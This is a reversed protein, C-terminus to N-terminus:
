RTLSLAPTLPRPGCACRWTSITVEMLRAPKNKVGQLKQAVSRWVPRACNAPWALRASSSRLSPRSRLWRRATSARTARWRTPLRPQLASWCAASIVFFSMSPPASATTKPKTSRPLAVCRTQPVIALCASWCRAAHRLASRASRLSHPPKPACNGTSILAWRSAAPRISSPACPLFNPPSAPMTPRPAPPSWFRKCRACLRRVCPLATSPPM